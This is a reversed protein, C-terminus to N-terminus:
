KIVGKIKLIDSLKVKGRHFVVRAWRESKGMILAIEKYNLGEISRLSIVERYNFELEELSRIIVEISEKNIFENECNINIRLDDIVDDINICEIKKNKRSWNLYLNRAISYLWTSLSCQGKFKGINKIAVIFSEHMLDEADDKSRTLFLLYRYVKNGYERYLEEFESM